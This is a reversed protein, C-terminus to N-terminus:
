AVLGRLDGDSHELSQKACILSRELVRLHLLRINVRRSLRSPRGIYDEQLQVSESMPNILWRGKMGELRLRHASHHLYHMKPMLGFRHWGDRLCLRACKTYSQLFVMMLSSLRLGETKPIWFGSAYMYSMSLNMATTGRAKSPERFRLFFTVCQLAM